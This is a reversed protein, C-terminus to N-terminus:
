APGAARGTMALALIAKSTHLRNEAQDWIAAGRPGDIVEAAIEEGRHAPLCHLVLADPAAKALLNLDVHYGAFAAARAKAEAEQGMSSWVDTMVVHAGRVADAPSDTLTVTAGAARAAAVEPEPPRYGWPCALTLELGLAGAAHLWSVAMNNGDGVWAVRLDTLRGAREAITVLDAVIQCPHDRDTLANIVPVGAFRALRQLRDDGFTRFVIAHAYRGLVRATDEIPEGRGLQTGASTLITAHGGLEAVAIEFSVRTRTSSKEMVIAVTKGALWPAPAHPRARKWARSADVLALLEARAIGALTLFSM